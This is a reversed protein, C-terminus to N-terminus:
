KGGEKWGPGLASEVQTHAEYFQYKVTSLNRGLLAAIEPLNLGAGYYLDLINRRDEPLKCVADQVALRMDTVAYQDTAVSDSADGGIHLRERSSSRFWDRSKNMAIQAVWTRFRSRSDFRAMSVWAGIWVEQRLDAVAESPVIRNLFRVLFPDHRRVLEDFSEKDGNRASKVLVADPWLSVLGSTPSEAVGVRTPKHM